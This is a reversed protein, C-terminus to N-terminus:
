ADASEKATLGSSWGGAHLYDLARDVASLRASPYGQESM